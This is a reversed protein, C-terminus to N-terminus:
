RRGESQNEPQLAEAELPMGDDAFLDSEDMKLAVAIRKRWAPFFVARKNFADNLNTQGIDAMRSLRSQSIGNIRMLLKLKTMKIVEQEQCLLLMSSNLIHTRM